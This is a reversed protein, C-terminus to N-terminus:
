TNQDLRAIFKALDELVARSGDNDRLDGRGTRLSGIRFLLMARVLGTLKEYDRLTDAYLRYNDDGRRTEDQLRLADRATKDSPADPLGKTWRDLLWRIEDEPKDGFRVTLWAPLPPKIRDTSM